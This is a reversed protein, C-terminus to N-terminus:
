LLRIINKIDGINKVTSMDIKDIEVNVIKNAFLNDKLIDEEKINIEDKVMIIFDDGKVRFIKDSRLLKKLLTAFDKLFQDGKDWGFLANYATFNHLTIAYLYTYNVNLNELFTYQLFSKNFTDTTNDKFFYAFRAEELQNLPMQHTSDNLPLEQLTKIAISILEDSFSINRLSDLEELAADKSKAQKYIRNTTMADYTDAISLIQSLLPIEDGKLGNPYGSGDYREHHSLIIQIEDQVFSIDHLMDYATIPHKKVIEYETATLKGPKLLIADPIKIKGIDHIIAAKELIKIDKSSIKMAQAIKLSYFQVRSDHGATYPDRAEIAKNLSTIFQAYSQEKEFKHNQLTLWLGIDGSLEKILEVEKNKFSNSHTNFVTIAYLLKEDVFIPVSLSYSFGCDQKSSCLRKEDIKYIHTVKNQLAPALISNEDVKTADFMTIIKEQSAHKSNAVVKVRDNQEVKSILSFEYLNNQVIKECIDNLIKKQSYNELLLQNVDKVTKIISSLYLENALNKRIENKAYILRKTAKRVRKNLIKNTIILFIALIVLILFIIIVWKLYPRDLKVSLYQNLIKYYPSKKDLKYNKLDRDLINKLSVNQKNLAFTINAPKFIIDSQKIDPFKKYSSYYLLRGGVGAYIKGQDLAEFIQEYNDFLSIKIKINLEKLMKLFFDTYIDNKLLGVKKGKLDYRVKALTGKKIYVVGWNTLINNDLFLFKKARKSSYAIPGLLDIKRDKLLQLCTKFKCHKFDLKFREKQAIQNLIDVFLGSEKNSNADTYSLPPNEYIGVHLTKSAFSFSLFLFYVFIIKKM